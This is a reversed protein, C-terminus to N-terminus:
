VAYLPRADALVSPRIRASLSRKSILDVHRGFAASLEQMLGAFDVLDPTAEPLFEVLLDIDSEDRGEGRAVSGFVSLERVQYRRCIEDLQAASVPSLAPHASPIM